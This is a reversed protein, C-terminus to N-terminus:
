ILELVIGREPTSVCYSMIKFMAKKHAEAAGTTM